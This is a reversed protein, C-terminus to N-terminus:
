ERDREIYDGKSKGERAREIPKNEEREIERASEIAREKEGERSAIRRDRSLARGRERKNRMLGVVTM